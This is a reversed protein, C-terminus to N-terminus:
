TKKTALKSSVEKVPWDQLLESHELQEAPRETPQQKEEKSVDEM